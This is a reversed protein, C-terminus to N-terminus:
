RQLRRTSKALATYLEALAPDMKKLAAVHSQIVEEDGRAIPGTLASPGHEAASQISAIALPMLLPGAEKESVGATTLIRAAECLLLSAFNGSTVAAAHYLARDGSVLFPTFGLTKALARAEETAKQTGAIAAPISDTQPLGFEPGPFTMLPHLSGAENHRRLPEIDKAGSAHLVIGGIPVAESANEIERDPVTLWTLTSKPITQGRGVLVYPTGQAHLIQAASRGLRGPGVITIPTEM